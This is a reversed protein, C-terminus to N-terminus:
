IEDLSAIETVHVPLEAHMRGPNYWHGLAGDPLPQLESLKDDVLVVQDVLHGGFEEPLIFGSGTKWRAITRAKMGPEHTIIAPLDINCARMKLAQWKPNGYSLIGAPETRNLLNRAQPLTFSRETGLLVFSKNVAELLEPSGVVVEAAPLLDFSPGAEHMLAHLEDSFSVGLLDGVLQIYASALADTDALTRDFDFIYHRSM